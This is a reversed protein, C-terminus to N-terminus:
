QLRGDPQVVPMAIQEEAMQDVPGSWLHSGDAEAFFSNGFGPVNMILIGLLAFGRVIDLTAIHQGAPLSASAGPHTALPPAPAALTTGAARHQLHTM